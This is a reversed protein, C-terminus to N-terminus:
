QVNKRREIFISFVTLLVIVIVIALIIYINKTFISATSYISFFTLVGTLIMYDLKKRFIFWSDRKISIMMGRDIEMQMMLDKPVGIAFDSINEGILVRCSKKKKDSYLIIRENENIDLKSAMNKSIRVIKTGQDMTKANQVQLIHSSFGILKDWISKRVGRPKTAPMIYIPLNELFRKKLEDNTEFNKDEKSFINKVSIDNHITFTNYYDDGTYAENFFAFLRQDHKEFYNRLSSFDDKTYYNWPILGLLERQQYNLWITSKKKQEGMELKLQMKTKLLPNYICVYNTGFTKIWNYSQEDVIITNKKLTEYSPKLILSIKRQPVQMFFSNTKINNFCTAKVYNIKKDNYKDSVIVDYSSSSYLQSFSNNLFSGNEFVNHKRESNIGLPKISSTYVKFLSKEIKYSTTVKLFNILKELELIVENRKAENIRIYNAIEIQIAPVNCNSQTVVSINNYYSAKFKSDFSVKFKSKQFFKKLFDYLLLNNNINNLNNTGIEIDFKCDKMGHIDLVYQINEREVLNILEKRYPSEDSFNPDDLDEETKYIFFSNTKQSLTLAIEYTYIEAPKEIENRIHTQTHPASILIASTGSIINFGDMYLM